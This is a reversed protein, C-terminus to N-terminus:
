KWFDIRVFGLFMCIIVGVGGTLIVQGFGTLLSVLGYDKLAKPNLTLGVSFLLFSIGLQSFLELTEMNKFLGLAFQAVLFGTIIHGVILPQRLFRMLLSIVTAVGILIGIEAFVTLEM